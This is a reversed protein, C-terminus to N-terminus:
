PRSTISTRISISISGDDDDDDDNRCCRRRWHDAKRVWVIPIVSLDPPYARGGEAARRGPTQTPMVRRQVGNIRGKFM